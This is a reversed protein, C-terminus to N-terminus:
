SRMDRFEKVFGELTFSPYAPKAIRVHEVMDRLMKDIDSASPPTHYFRDIRESLWEPIGDAKTQHIYMVLAGIHFIKYTRDMPM